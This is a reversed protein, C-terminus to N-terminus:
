ARRRVPAIKLAYRVLAACPDCMYRDTCWAADGVRRGSRRGSNGQCKQDALQRLDEVYAAEVQARAINGPGGM